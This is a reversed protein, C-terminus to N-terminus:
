RAELTGVPATDAGAAARLGALDIIQLRGYTRRIVGSQEFDELHRGIVSRALNAMQALETQTVDLESSFAQDSTGLRAGCLRLLVAAVRASSSRITLDDMAAVALSLHEFALYGIGRWFEPRERAIAEITQRPIFLCECPRLAVLSTIRPSDALFEAEGLWSGSHFLNLTTPGHNSWATDMRVSGSILGYLGDAADGFHWFVTKRTIRRVTCAAKLRERVDDPLM